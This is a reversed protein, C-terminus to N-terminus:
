KIQVTFINFMPLIEKRVVKNQFAEPWTYDVRREEEKKFEDIYTNSVNIANNDKDYLIVVVNMDPITFLSNNRLDAFLHPSKDENELTINKPILQIQNIIDGKVNLWYPVETFTFTTYVPVASGLEVGREFVAFTRGPPISVVGDRKGIYINDKDAFRFSYKINKVALNKNHNELYAVANYRGPVVMFSRSWLVSVPSAEFTCALVCSGGCDVGTETGNQKGDSCTPAKKISPYILLFGFVFIFLFLLSIYFIQRRLSWTM